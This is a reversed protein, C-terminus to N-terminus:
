QRAPGCMVVALSLAVFVLLPEVVVVVVVVVVVAFLAAALVLLLEYQLLNLSTPYMGM